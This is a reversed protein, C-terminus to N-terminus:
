SPSMCEREDSTRVQGMPEVIIFRVPSTMKDRPLSDASAQESPRGFAVAKLGSLYRGSSDFELKFMKQETDLPKQASCDWLVPQVGSILNESSRRASTAPDFHVSSVIASCIQPSDCDGRFTVYGPQIGEVQSNLDEESVWVGSNMGTQMALIRARQLEQAFGQSAKSVGASSQPFYMYFAYALSGIILIVVLLEVLTFGHEARRSVVVPIRGFARLLSMLKYIRSEMKNIVTQILTSDELKFITLRLHM